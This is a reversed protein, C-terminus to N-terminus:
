ATKALDSWQDRIVEIAEAVLDNSSSFSGAMTQGYEALGLFSYIGYTLGREVRVEQM